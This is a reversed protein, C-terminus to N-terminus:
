RIPTFHVIKISFRGSHKRGLKQENQQATESSIKKLFRGVLFLCPEHRGHKNVSQFLKLLRILTDEM